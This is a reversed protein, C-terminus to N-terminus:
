ISVPTGPILEAGSFQLFIYLRGPYLTALRKCEMRASSATDHPVPYPAASFVGSSDVSGVIFTGKRRTVAIFDSQSELKTNPSMINELENIPEKSPLNRYGRTMLSMRDLCELKDMYAKSAVSMTNYDTDVTLHPSKNQGKCYNCHVTGTCCCYDTRKKYKPHLM